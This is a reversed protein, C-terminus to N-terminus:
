PICNAAATTLSGKDSFKKDAGISPPGYFWSYFAIEQLHYAYGDLTVNPFYKGTLPDSVELNAQCTNTTKNKWPPTSNTVLPDDKWEAIIHSANLTDENNKGYAGTLDFWFAGYTQAPSGYAGHYGGACCTTVSGTYFAVNYLMFVPFTTPGVGQSKLKPIITSTLYNDWWTVEVGGLPGCAADTVIASHATGPTITVPKLTVVKLDSHYNGGNKSVYTWFNARQLADIYQDDGVSIGNIKLTTPVVLPSDQMMTLPIKGSACPSAITPNFTDSGIKLIVPVIQMTTTTTGSTTEPNTGVMVGTFKQGSSGARTSTVNYTWVKLGTGADSQEQILDLDAGVLPRELFYPNRSVSEDQGLTRPAIATLAIVACALLLPATRKM